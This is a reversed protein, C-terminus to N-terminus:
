LKSSPAELAKNLVPDVIHPADLRYETLLRMPTRPLDLPDTSIGM